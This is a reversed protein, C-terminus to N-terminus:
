AGAVHRLVHDGGPEGVAALELDCVRDSHAWGTETITCLKPVPLSASESIARIMSSLEVQTGGGEPAVEVQV